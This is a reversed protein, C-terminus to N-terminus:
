SHLLKTLTKDLLIIVPVCIGRSSTFLIANFNDTEKSFNKYQRTVRDTSIDYGVDSVDHM